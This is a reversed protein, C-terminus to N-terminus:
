LLYMFTTSIFLDNILPELGRLYQIFSYMGDDTANFHPCPIEDAGCKENGDVVKRTYVFPKEEITLVKLHTPIMFGEPKKSQSGPWIIIKEDVTLHM